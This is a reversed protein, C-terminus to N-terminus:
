IQPSTWAVCVGLEMLDQSDGSTSPAGSACSDSSSDGGPKKQESREMRTTKWKQRLEPETSAM